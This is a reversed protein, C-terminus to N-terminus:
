VGAAAHQRSCEFKSKLIPHIESKAKRMRRRKRTRRVQEIVNKSM